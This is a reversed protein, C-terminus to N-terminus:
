LPMSLALNLAALRLNTNKELAEQTALVAKRSTLIKAAVNPNTINAQQLVALVRSLGDLLKAFRLKDKAAMQMFGLREYGKLSLVKKADEVAQKMSHDSGQKLLASLLGPAGRSLRWASDVEHSNYQNFFRDSQELSVPVINLAQLRSNVTPLINQPWSSTLILVTRDPPEELLKLLANQAEGSLLDADEIVAVRNIASGGGGAKLSLKNILRRASDIPIESKDDPKSIVSYQPHLALRDPELGLLVASLRNAIFKKGSGAPGAILLGHGPRGAFALLQKKTTPHLLLDDFM